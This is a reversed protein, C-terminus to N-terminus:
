PSCSSCTSRVPPSRATAFVRIDLLPHEHRLEWILVRRRAVVGIILGAITLWHGWGKEPGEHIGLVIGGIALASLFSGVIDFRGSTIERAATVYRWTLVFAAAALAIPMAFLWPWTFYDIMFSSFFLGLIGGAGAFGAWIGIARARQEDPFTSTIVSLTVPMIMAAGVGALVRAVLLMAVTTSLPPWSTPAPSCSSAPWCSTSAAGATASPASRCCCRPSRWRTATSSGSCSGQSAGLDLALDQQAVNLASVSAIVAVLAICMAVLVRQRRKPETDPTATPAAAITGTMTDTSM